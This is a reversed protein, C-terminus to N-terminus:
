HNILTHFTIAVLEGLFAAAAVIVALMWIPM